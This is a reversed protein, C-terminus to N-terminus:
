GCDWHTLGAWFRQEYSVLRQEALQEVESSFKLGMPTSEATMTSMVLGM